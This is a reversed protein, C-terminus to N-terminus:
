CAAPPLEDWGTILDDFEENMVADHSGSGLVEISLVATTRRATFMVDRLRLDILFIAREGICCTDVALLKLRDQDRRLPNPEDAAHNPRRVLAHTDLDVEYQTGSAMTVLYCGESIGDLSEM